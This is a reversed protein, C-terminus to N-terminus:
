SNRHPQPQKASNKPYSNGLATIVAGFIACDVANSVWLQIGVLM